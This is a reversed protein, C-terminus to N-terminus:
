KKESREPDPAPVGREVKLREIAVEDAKIQQRSAQETAKLQRDHELSKDENRDNRRKDLRKELDDFASAITLDKASRRQDRLVANFEDYPLKLLIYTTYKGNVVVVKQDVVEFGVVPVQEVLKDIISTYQETVSDGGSDSEYSRESGSIEQKYMKALGFEGQLRAGNMSTRLKKSESIGVAYMGTADSRPPELIWSPLDDLADSLRDNERETYEARAEIRSENLQSEREVISNTSSCGSALLGVMIPLSLVKYVKKMKSSRYLFYYKLAILGHKFIRAVGFVCFM